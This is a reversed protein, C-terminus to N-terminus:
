TLVRQVEALCADINDRAEKILGVATGAAAAGAAWENPLQQAYSEIRADSLGAWAHRIPQFDIERGRLATRFIHHGPAEMAKLAGLKWPPQWGIIMGHTFALEHDFIRIDDGRVLCNPNISRRDVNQIIGDFVFIAAAVPAIAELLRTGPSWLSFQPGAYKSGFAIRASTSFKTRHVGPPIIGIWQDTVEILVPEPIPLGLDGALCAAIVERVLNAVGEDCFSSFKAIVEIFEGDPRECNLLAPQTRGSTTARVFDVPSVRALM